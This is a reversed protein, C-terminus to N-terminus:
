PGSEGPTKPGAAPPVTPAAAGKAPEEPADEALKWIGWLILLFVAIQVCLGLWNRTTWEAPGAPQPIDEAFAPLPAAAALLLLARAAAAARTM